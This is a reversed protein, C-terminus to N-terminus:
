YWHDPGKLIKGTIKKNEPYARLVTDICEKSKLEIKPRYGTKSSILSVPPIEIM